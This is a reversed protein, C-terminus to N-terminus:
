TKLSKVAKNAMLLNSLGFVLGLLSPVWGLEMLCSSPLIGFSHLSQPYTAYPKTYLNIFSMGLGTMTPNLTTSRLRTKYLHVIFGAVFAKSCFWLRGSFLKNRTKRPVQGSSLRTALIYGVESWFWVGAETAGSLAAKLFPYQEGHFCNTTRGKRFM